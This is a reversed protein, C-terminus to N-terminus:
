NRKDFSFVAIFVNTFEVLLFAKEHNKEATFM